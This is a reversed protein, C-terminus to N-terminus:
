IQLIYRLINLNGQCFGEVKHSPALVYYVEFAFLKRFNAKHRRRGWCLLTKQYVFQNLTVKWFHAKGLFDSAILSIFNVEWSSSVKGFHRKGLLTLIGMRCSGKMVQHSIRLLECWNCHTLKPQCVARTEEIQIWIKWTCCIPHSKTLIDKAWFHWFEWRLVVWGEM